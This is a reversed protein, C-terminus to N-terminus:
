TTNRTRMQVKNWEIVCESMQAARKVAKSITVRSPLRHPLAVITCCHSTGHVGPLALSRALSRAIVADGNDCALVYHKIGGNVGHCGSDHM